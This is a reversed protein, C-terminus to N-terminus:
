KLQYEDRRRYRYNQLVKHVQRQSVNGIKKAITFHLGQDPPAPAALYERYAEEIKRETELPVDAIRNFRDRDDHLTDLWRAVQYANAFGAQEAIKSPMEDLRYRAKDLEEWYLKEITFLQERSLEPSPSQSYQSQSWEYVINRVQRLPVNVTQSITRRRGGTPRERREVYGAYMEIIREKTGPTIEVDPEIVKNLARGVLNRKVWLKDSIRTIADKDPVEGGAAEAQYAQLIQERLEPTLERAKPPRPPVPEKPIKLPPAKKMEPRPRDPKDGFRRPPHKEGPRPKVGAPAAKGARKSVCKPCYRAKRDTSFFAANCESCQLRFKM